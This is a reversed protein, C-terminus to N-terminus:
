GILALVEKRARTLKMRVSDPKISFAAAIETDSQALIYKRELLQRSTDPLQPWISKLRDVQDKHFLYDEVDEDTSIFKCLLNEEDDLSFFSTKEKARYYNKTQNRVTTILYNIRRRENLGRLTSIKDILRVLSDQMIDEIAWQDSVLKKIEAYMIYQNDVYLKTMFARDDEDDM